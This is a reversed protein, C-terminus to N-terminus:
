SFVLSFRNLNKNENWRRQFVFKWKILNVSIVADRVSINNPINSIQKCKVGFLNMYIQLLNPKELIGITCIKEHVLSHSTVVRMM